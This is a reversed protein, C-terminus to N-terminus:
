KIDKKRFVWIGGFTMVGTLFVSCLIMRVPRVVELNAILIGQGSPLLELVFECVERTVGSVYGPNPAPEMMEVTGEETVMVGGSMEPECLTNYLSSGWILLFLALLMSLVVGLAKNSCNMGLFASIACFAAAMLVLLMLYLLINRAGTQFFGFVPVGAMGGALWMFLLCLTATFCLFLNSLYVDTRSSGVILKNRITGDSYETGLFMGTFIANLFLIFPTMQFYYDELRFQDWGNLTAVRGANVIYLISILLTGIMLAWFVKDKRLRILGASILNRM